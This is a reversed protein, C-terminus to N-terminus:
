QLVGSLQPRERGKDRWAGETDGGKEAVCTNEKLKSLALPTAALAPSTDSGM